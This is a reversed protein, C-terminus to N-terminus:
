RASREERLLGGTDLVIPLPKRKHLRERFEVLTPREAIERLEVLLYDSLSMGAMAARAKLSRHLADPVNRVQIMKAMGRVYKCTACMYFRSPNPEWHRAGRARPCHHAAKKVSLRM